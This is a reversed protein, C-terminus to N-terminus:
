ESFILFAQRLQQWQQEKVAVGAEPLALAVFAVDVVAATSVAAADDDVDDFRAGGGAKTDSV